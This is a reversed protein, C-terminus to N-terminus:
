RKLKSSTSELESGAQLERASEHSRTLTGDCHRKLASYRHLGWFGLKLKKM